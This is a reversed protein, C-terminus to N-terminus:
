EALPDSKRLASRLSRWCPITPADTGIEAEMKIRTRSRIRRAAGEGEATMPTATM